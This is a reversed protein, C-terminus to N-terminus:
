EHKGRQLMAILGEVGQSKAERNIKELLYDLGADGTIKWVAKGREYVLAPVQTVEYKDFLSPQIKIPIEFRECLGRKGQQLNDVCSRDKKTIRIMYRQREGPVFGRMLMTIHPDDLLELATLYSYITADPM